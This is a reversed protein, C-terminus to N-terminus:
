IISSRYKIIEEENLSELEHPFVVWKNTEHLHYDPSIHTKNNSPKYWPMAIKIDEIVNRHTENIANIVADITNGTDFIDDVILIKEKEDLSELTSDLGFIKVGALQKTNKYSSAKLVTHNTIIKKYSMLEHIVIGVTAGGRWLTIITTPQYGSEIVKMGLKFSDDVLDQATIILKEINNTGM